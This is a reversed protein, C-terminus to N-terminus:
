AFFCLCPATTLLSADFWSDLILGIMFWQHVWWIQRFFVVCREYVYKSYRILHLGRRDDCYWWIKKRTWFWTPFGYRLRKLPYQPVSPLFGAGTSLDTIGNNLLTEFCCMRPPAPNSGDVTNLKLFCSFRVRGFGLERACPWGGEAWDASFLAAVDKNAM